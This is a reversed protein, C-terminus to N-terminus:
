PQGKAQQATRVAHLILDFAVQDALTQLSEALAMNHPQISAIAAGIHQPNGEMSVLELTALQEAPLAALAALDINTTSSQTLATGGDSRNTGLHHHLAEIIDSSQFPKRIFGDFGEALAEPGVRDFGSASLAIIIPRSGASGHIHQALNHGNQRPLRLDLFILQPQWADSIAVAEEGDRAERVDLGLSSLFTALLRRNDDHNDVVLVRHHANVIMARKLMTPNPADEKHVAQVPIHASFTAGHGYTSDVNLEGGMLRVFQQSIALGLGSGEGTDQGASTQVFAHFLQQQENMPIGPGTDTVRVVLMVISEDRRGEVNECSVTLTVGGFETFKVANGLLNILVQRLKVADVFVFPPVEATIHQRLYLGKSEAHLRFMDISSAVLQHLDTTTTLLPTQGAELRSLDLVSNIMNLLHQASNQVIRAYTHQDPPLAPEGAILRNYGMITHLPTRLEHSMTALFTSKARNAAEARDKAVTLEATREAVRSDLQINMRLLDQEARQREAILAALFLLPAAFAIFETQLNLVNQAPAARLYPGNGMATQWSAILSSATLAIGLGGPGFRVAAWLLLPLLGFRIAVESAPGAPLLFIVASSCLLLSAFIVIEVVRRPTALRLWAPGNQYTLLIAPLITLFALTNSFASLWWLDWFGQSTVLLAYLISIGFPVLLAAGVATALLVTVGRLTTVQLKGSTYRRLIGVVLLALLLDSVFTVVVRLLPLHLIANTLTHSAIITLLLGWWYRTPTILLAALIIATPPWILPVRFDPLHVSVGIWTGLGYSVALFAVAGLVHAATWSRKGHAVRIDIWTGGVM